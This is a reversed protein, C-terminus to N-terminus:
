AAERPVYREILAGVGPLAEAVHKEAQGRLKQYTSAIIKQEARAARADTIALLADSAEREHASLFQGFSEGEGEEGRYREHLPDLAGTFEDLLHDVAKEIMRGSQLAKVVKYGGKLAMGSIGGKRAVEADILRVTDEIVAQRNVQALKEKLYGM